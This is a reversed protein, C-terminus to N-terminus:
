PRTSETCRRLHQARAFEHLAAATEVGIMPKGHGTALVTPELSALFQISAAAARGNWTTYWPPASLGSRQLVLGALSNVKLTVIADGSILVRDGPRFYAVHGTPLNAAIGPASRFTLAGCVFLVVMTAISYRRFRGAFAAAAFGMEFMMLAVTIVSWVIHMTDTLTAGGAALVARQHMPLKRAM